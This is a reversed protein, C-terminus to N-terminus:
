RQLEPRRLWLDLLSVLDRWRQHPLQDLELFLMGLQSRRIGWALADAGLGDILELRDLMAFRHHGDVVRVVLGVEPREIGPDALPKADVLHGVNDLRLDIADRAVERVLVAGEDSRRRTAVPPSTNTSCM